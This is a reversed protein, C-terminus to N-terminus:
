QEQNAEANPKAQAPKRLVRYPQVWPDFRCVARFACEDCATESGERYPAPAVTGAFIETGIRKLHAEVQQLLAGFAESDLAESYRDFRGDKLLRYKFQDGQSSAARSDFYALLGGDFRGRHQYPALEIKPGPAMAETRVRVPRRRGSLDVYFAGAPRLKGASLLPQPDALHELASLYALLQLELGHALKVSDLPQARSKYDIVVVLAEEGQDMRCVDVRDIRGRLVLAHKSDLVLRWGPLGSGPGFEVEARVPDFRYQERNWQVWQAVLQGLRNLLLEARFRAQATAVFLGDRYSPLLSQGLQRVLERAAQPEIDRWHRGGATVAEHFARLVVHALSGTERADIIFRLREEAQLGRRMFFKFPCAAFDELATVSVVLENGYVATVAQPSLRDQQATRWAQARALAPRFVELCALHDWGSRTGAEAPSAQPQAGTRLRASASSVAAAHQIVPIQLEVAHQADAWDVPGNFEEIQLRPFLRRVYDIFVSPNLAQGNAAQRACTLVVQERARTCAIYGYFQEQGLHRQRNPGLECGLQELKARDLESLLGAPPPPAPFVTENLGLVFVRKLDPNRSRDIAGVLVQDLVPPIVGVTLRALGAEVIPLWDRLPLAVEGFGLALNQLWQQLQAWATTHWAAPSRWGAEPAERRSWSQLREMVGLRSWLHELAASLQLGTPAQGLAQELELFPPMLRQRLQELRETLEAQGPVRLPQRWAAGAWGRALAETELEDIEADTAPVLGTKLAGFWDPQQWGFAITRLAFRTLEALPHHAISERRDLFFPIGYRGFVRRVPDHYLELNRVLVAVYRFRGGQERVWRWIERAAFVAEAYPDPCMVVRVAGAGDDQGEYPKPETWYRELHQLAPATNFRSRDARRELQVVEIQVGPLAQIDARCQRYTRAVSAWPWHWPLQEPPQGELCFALTAQRCRRVVAVLLRREQPTMQAFGDLWLGEVRLEPEVSRQAQPELADAALSLLSDTDQLRHRYLWDRYAAWVCALDHLKSHLPEGVQARAILQRLHEPSLHHQQLERLLQSVQHAFGPQRASAGFLRLRPQLQALIARLVMVRGEEALLAPVAQGRQAFVWAALREFSLIHLRTYGPLSREALLQRELQFTAQKPALLVLPLGEPAQQLAARIETLCRYTKGSGAPGLIFRVLV